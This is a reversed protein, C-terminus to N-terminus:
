TLYVECKDKKEYKKNLLFFINLFTNKFNLIAFLILTMDVVQQLVVKKFKFFLMELFKTGVYFYFQKSAPSVFLTISM